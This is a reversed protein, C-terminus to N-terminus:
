KKLAEQIKKILVASRIPKQLYKLGATSIGKEAIVYDPYGSMFIAKIDPKLRKMADFASKGHKYPMVIDMLILDVKDLNEEFKKIADDGNVALIVNYGFETLLERLYDRVYIDDDAVLITGSGHPIDKLSGEDEQSVAEEDVVPLYIKFTTGEGPSSIVDIFGGHEKIISYSNYLGLGTGKGVEKTTFFPDFIKKKTEEDMGMGTDEVSIVAYKGPNTHAGHKKAKEESVEVVYTRINLVGGLPMADQANAVMNMMVQYLQAANVYVVPDENSLSLNVQIDDTVIDALLKKVMVIQDNLKIPQKKIQKDKTYTLLRDIMERARVCSMVIRNATDMDIKDGVELRYKIMDAGGMISSLMNNFDHAIGGALSGMAELKQANLLQQELRKKEEERKRLMRVMENFATALRFAEEHDVEVPIEYFEKTSGFRRVMQAVRDIPGIIKMCSRRVWYYTIALILFLITLSIFICNKQKRIINSKDLILETWGILKKEKPIIGLIMEEENKFERIVYVPAWIDVYKNYEFIFPPKEKNNMKDKIKFISTLRPLSKQGKNKAINILVADKDFISIGVVNPQYLFGMAEGMLLEKNGAMVGFRSNIALASVLSKGENILSNKVSLIQQVSFFVFISIFIILFTTSFATMIRLFLGKKKSYSFSSAFFRFFSKLKNM